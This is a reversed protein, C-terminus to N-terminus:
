LIFIDVLVLSVIAFVILSGLLGDRLPLKRKPYIFIRSKGMYGRSVMADGVKIARDFSRILLMGALTGYNRLKKLYSLSNSYGCRSQQAKYMRASEESIISIYRFMLMMTDIIVSPIKFWGLSDLLATIPTVLILLNLVAVAAMCRTFILIAFSIGEQYVPLSLRPVVAIINSGFTFPQIIAVFTIIYIPYLLRKLYVKLSTKSYLVLGLCTIFALLAMQWHNLIVIGLIAVFACIVKVRVDLKHLLSNGESYEGFDVHM